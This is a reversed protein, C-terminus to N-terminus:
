IFSYIEVERHLNYFYYKEHFQLQPRHNYADYLTQISQPDLYKCSHPEIIFASLELHVLTHTDHYLDNESM